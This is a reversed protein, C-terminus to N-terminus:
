QWGQMQPQPQPEPQAQPGPPAPPPRHRQEFRQEPQPPPPGYAAAGASERPGQYAVNVRERVPPQRPPLLPEEAVDIIATEDARTHSWPSSTTEAPPSRGIWSCTTSSSSTVSAPRIPM